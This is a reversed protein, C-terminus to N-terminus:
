PQTSVLVTEVVFKRPFVSKYGLSDIVAAGPTVAKGKYCQKQLADGELTSCKGKKGSGKGGRAITVSM